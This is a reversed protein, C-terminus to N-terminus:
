LENTNWRVQRLMSIIEDYSYSPSTDPAPFTENQDPRANKVPYPDATPKPPRLQQQPKDLSKRRVLIKLGVLRDGRWDQQEILDKHKVRFGSRDCTGLPELNERSTSKVNQRM